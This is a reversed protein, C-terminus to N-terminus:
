QRPYICESACIGESECAILCEALSVCECLCEWVCVKLFEYVPESVSIFVTVILFRFEM